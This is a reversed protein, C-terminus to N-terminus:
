NNDTYFVDEGEQRQAEQVQEGVGGKGSGVQEELLNMGILYFSSTSFNTIDQPTEM